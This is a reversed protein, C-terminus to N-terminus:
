DIEIKGYSFCWLNTYKFYKFNTQRFGSKSKPLIKNFVEQLELPLNAYTAHTSYHLPLTKDAKDEEFCMGVIQNDPDHYFRIHKANLINEDKILRQLKIKKTSVTLTKGFRDYVKKTIPEVPRFKFVVNPKLGMAAEKIEEIINEEM